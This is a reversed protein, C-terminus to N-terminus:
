ADVGKLFADFDVRDVPQIQKKAHYAALASAAAFKVTQAPHRPKDNAAFVAYHEFYLRYAGDNENDAM